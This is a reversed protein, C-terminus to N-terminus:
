AWSPASSRSAPSTRSRGSRGSSTRRRGSGASSRRLAALRDGGVEVRGLCARSPPAPPARRTGGAAPRPACPPSALDDLVGAPDALLPARGVDRRELGLRDPQLLLGLRLDGGLRPWASASILCCTASSVIAAVSFTTRASSSAASCLRRISSASASTSKAAARAAPPRALLPRASRAPRARRRRPARCAAARRRRARRALDVRSRRRRMAASPPFRGSTRLREGVRAMGRSALFRTAARRQELSESGSTAFRRARAPRGRGGAARRRCRRRRRRAPRRRPDSGSPRPSWRRPGRRRGPRRGARACRRPRRGRRRVDDGGDIGGDDAPM